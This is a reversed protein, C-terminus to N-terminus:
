QAKLSAFLLISGVVAFFSPLAMWFYHLRIRRIFGYSSNREIKKQYKYVKDMMKGAFVLQDLERRLARYRYYHTQFKTYHKLSFAAGYIGLCLILLGIWWDSPDIQRDWGVAAICFGAVLSVITTMRERHNQHHHAFDLEIKALDILSQRTAEDLDM